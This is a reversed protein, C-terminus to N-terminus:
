VDNVISQNLRIKLIDYLYMYLLKVNTNQNLLKENQTEYSYPFIEKILTQSLIQQLM